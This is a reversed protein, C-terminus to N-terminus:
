WRGRGTFSSDERRWGPVPPRGGGEGGGLRRDLFWGACFGAVGLFLSVIFAGFGGVAGAFGLIVGALMLGVTARSMDM